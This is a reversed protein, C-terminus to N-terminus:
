IMFVDYICIFVIPVNYIYPRLTINFISTLTLFALTIIFLLFYHILVSKLFYNLFNFYLTLQLPETVYIPM